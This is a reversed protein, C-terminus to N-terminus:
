VHYTTTNSMNEKKKLKFALSTGEVQIRHPFADKKPITFTYLIYLKSTKIYIVQGQKLSGSHSVV